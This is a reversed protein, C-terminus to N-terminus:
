GAGCDRMYVIKLEYFLVLQALRGFFLKDSFKWDIRSTKHLIVKELAYYSRPRLYHCPEVRSREVGILYSSKTLLIALHRSGHNSELTTNPNKSLQRIRSRKNSLHRVLSTREPSPIEFVTSKSCDILIPHVAVHRQTMMSHTSIQKSAAVTLSRALPYM